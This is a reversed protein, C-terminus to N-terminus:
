TNFPAITFKNGQYVNLATPLNSLVNSPWRRVPGGNLTTWQDVIYFQQLRCNWVIIRMYGNYNWTPPTFVNPLMQLTKTVPDYDGHPYDFNTYGDEYMYWSWETDSDKTRCYNIWPLGSPTITPTPTPPPPPCGLTFNYGDSLPNSPNEPGTEVRMEYTNGSFYTFVFSGITGATNLDGADGWPGSYTNDYGVWGSTQSLSGNIYLNFRNPRDFAIYSITISTSNVYYGNSLDLCHTTLTYSSGSYTGTVTDYCRNDCSLPYFETAIPVFSTDVTKSPTITITPTVTNTPTPTPTNASPTVTPTVTPTPTNASPTVTPTVTPTPTNASPTVTPTVTPTPTNASPTVTPTPTVTNTPTQTPTETPTPTATNTPTQTPTETPTQTVTPTPTETATQTPTETPTITNTPTNTPTVTVTQTPTVSPTVTNTPTLTPTPTPTQSPFLQTKSTNCSENYLFLAICSDPVTVNVGNGNTLTSYSLNTAPQGNSTLTAINGAEISDYYITYPGPATGTTIKIDFYRAM